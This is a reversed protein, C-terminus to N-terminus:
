AINRNQLIPIAHAYPTSTSTSTSTSTGYADFHKMYAQVRPHGNEDQAQMANVVAVGFAGTM